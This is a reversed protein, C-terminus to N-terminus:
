RKNKLDFKHNIAQGIKKAINGIDGAGMTIIINGPNITNIMQDVLNEKPIVTVSKQTLQQIKQSLVTASVGEIQAESAAYIDTLIVFDADHFASSFEELLNQTRSYRHPQFICTIPSDFISKASKLTMKIETPHHAYDDFLKIDNTDIIKQFRRSTGTFLGLQQKIIEFPINYLIGTAISALANYVNHLGYIPLSISDIEQQNHWVTFRIGDQSNIIDTARVMADSTIGYTMMNDEPLEQMFSGIIDDDQNMVVTGSRHIVEEIFTFFHQILNSKNKFFDMHDQEVNTIIATTPNLLLFSGDSEDAESIFVESKRYNANDNSDLRNAGVLYTPQKNAGEFITTIMATTTTKGHTGSIAIKESFEEMLQRVMDARKIISINHALAWQYEENTDLIASSVIVVDINQNQINSANHNTYIRAGKKKLEYTHENERLDSGSVQYGKQLLIKAIGSMGIGGIGILYVANSKVQSLLIEKYILQKLPDLVCPIIKVFKNM